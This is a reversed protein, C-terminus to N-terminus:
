AKQLGQELQALLDIAEDKSKRALKVLTARLEAHSNLHQKNAAVLQAQYGRMANLHAIYETVMLWALGVGFVVSATLILKQWAEVDVKALLRDLELM